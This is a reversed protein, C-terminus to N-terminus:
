SIDLDQHARQEELTIFLNVFASPPSYLVPTTAAPQLEHGGKKMRNYAEHTKISFAFPFVQGEEWCRSFKVGETEVSLSITFLGM